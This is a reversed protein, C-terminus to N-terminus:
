APWPLRDLDTVKRTGIKATCRGNRPTPDATPRIRQVTRVLREGVGFGQPNGLRTDVRPRSTRFLTLKGVGCSGLSATRLAPTFHSRRSINGCSEGSDM